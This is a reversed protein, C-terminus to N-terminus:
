LHEVTNYACSKCRIEGLDSLSQPFYSFIDILSGVRLIAKVLGIKVFSM